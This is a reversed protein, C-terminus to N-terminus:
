SLCLKFNFHMLVKDSQCKRLIRVEEFITECLIEQFHPHYAWFYFKVQLSKIIYRALSLLKLNKFAHLIPFLLSADKRLIKEYNVIM